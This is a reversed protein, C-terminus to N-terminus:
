WHPLINKLFYFLQPNLDDFRSAVGSLGILFSIVISFGVLGVILLIAIRGQIPFPRTEVYCLWIGLVMVVALIPTFDLLYRSTPYGYLFVPVAGLVGAVTLLAGVQELPPYAKAHNSGFSPMSESPRNRLLRSLSARAFEAVFILSPMAFVLGSNAEASFLAPVNFRTLFEQFPEYLGYLPRVYPFSSVLHVPAFFYYLLNPVIFRATFLTGQALQAAKDWKTLQYQFGTAFPNQFRAFNYLAYLILVFTFPGLLAFVGRARDRLPKHSGKTAIGLLYTGALLALVSLIVTPRTTLALALFFGSFAYSVASRPPQGLGRIAFFLGALLFAQAAAIAAAYIRPSNLVWPMPFCIAIGVIGLILLWDPIKSFYVARLQMLCLASFLFIVLVSVFVVVEDGVPQMGLKALGALALAPAPGWYLYYKGHFYSLDSIAPIGDRQEASYPNELGALEAPPQLSLYTKGDAFAEALMWYDQTTRPWSTFHWVSVLGVYLFCVMAFTLGTAVILGRSLRSDKSERPTALFSSDHQNDPPSANRVPEGALTRARRSDDTRGQELLRHDKSILWGDLRAVLLRGGEVIFGVAGLWLVGRRVLGWKMGPDLGLIGALLDLVVVLLFGMPVAWSLLRSARNVWQNRYRQM